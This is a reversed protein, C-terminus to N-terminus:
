SASGHGLLDTVTEFPVAVTMLVSYHTTHTGVIGASENLRVPISNHHIRPVYDFYELQFEAGILIGQLDWKVGTRAGLTYTSERRGDEAQHRINDSTIQSADYESKAHYFGVSGDTYIILNSFIEFSLESGIKGGVYRTHIDELLPVSILPDTFLIAHLDYTQNLGIYSFGAYPKVHIRDKAFGYDSKYFSEIEWGKEIFFLEGFLSTESEVSGVTAGDIDPLFANPAGAPPVTIRHVDYAKYFSGRVEASPGNGFDLLTDHLRYGVRVDTQLTTSDTKFSFLHDTGPDNVGINYGVGEVWKAGTGVEAYFRDLFDKSAPKTNPAGLATKAPHALVLFIILITRPVNAFRKLKM